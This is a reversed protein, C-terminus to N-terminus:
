YIATKAFTETQKKKKRLWKRFIYLINFKSLISIKNKCFLFVSNTVPFNKIEINFNKFSVDYQNNLDRSWFMLKIWYPPNSRKILRNHKTMNVNVITELPIKRIHNKIHYRRNNGSQYHLYLCNVIRKKIIVFIRKINNDM